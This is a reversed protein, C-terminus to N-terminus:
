CIETDTARSKSHAYPILCLFRVKEKGPNFLQHEINPPIFVCDGKRFKWEKNKSKIIGKGETVFVEHEWPHQHYPTEGDPGIELQRMAFNEAGM